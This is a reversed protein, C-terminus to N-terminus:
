KAKVDYVWLTDQERQYLRGGIVVPHSWSEKEYNPIKFVGSEKYGNPTAEVLAVFGNQYHIYLFGDAYTISASGDGDKKGRDKLWDEKIVGTKWEVCWPNGSDDRDLYIYDGVRVAGGHKNTLSGKYYAEKATIKSDAASLTLLAGGKGYGATAFVQDGLIIPTPINATNNGLKEYKWLLKGDKADVGIVGSSLLQVYQKVGAGNGIVMSSYRAEDQYDSKWIVDGTMKDLAVIANKGGPTCVLKDGDVLPSETYNWGGGHGHFDKEFNKRWVESGDAVKLCVLDGFQGLAYVRDGDVTPTCRTGSYNGGPNGVKTKWVITGNNRDLAFVFAEKELDGMTFIKDGVVAVSSFGKGIGTAKFALPPGDKPWETLLGKDPSIDDRNPGRWQPWDATKTEAASGLPAAATLLILCGLLTSM